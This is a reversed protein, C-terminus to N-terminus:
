RRNTALSIEDEKDDFIVLENNEPKHFVNCIILVPIILTGFRVAFALIILLVVFLEGPPFYFLMTFSGLANM